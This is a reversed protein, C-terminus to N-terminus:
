IGWYDRWERYIRHGEKTRFPSEDDPFDGRPIGRWKKRFQLLTRLSQLLKERWKAADFQNEGAREVDALVGLPHLPWLMDGEICALPLRDRSSPPQPPEVKWLDHKAVLDVCREIEAPTFLSVATSQPHKLQSLLSGANEAGKQMHELRQRKKLETLEAAKEFHGKAELERIEEEMIRKIFYNDHTFCFATAVRRDTLSLREDEAIRMVNAFVVWEHEQRNDQPSRQAQWHQWTANSVVCAVTCLEQREREEEVVWLAQELMIRFRPPLLSLRRIRETINSFSKPM